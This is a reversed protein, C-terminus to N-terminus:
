SHGCDCPGKGLRPRGCKPCKRNSLKTVGPIRLRGFIALVLMGILFLSIIKIIM